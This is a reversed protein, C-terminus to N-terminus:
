ATALFKVWVERHRPGDYEMFFVGQWTGLQLEGDEVIFTQSFGTLTTKIHADSNGESHAYGSDQPITQSLFNMIDSKVDPDANENCSIAATTHPCYVVCAGSKLGKKTILGQVQRTIDIVQQRRTSQVDITEM